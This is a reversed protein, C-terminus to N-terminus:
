RGTDQSQLITLWHALNEPSPDVMGENVGLGNQVEEHYLFSRRDPRSAIILRINSVPNSWILRISGEFLEVHPPRIPSPTLQEAQELIKKLTAAADSTPPSDGDDVMELDQLVAEIAPWIELTSRARGTGTAPM